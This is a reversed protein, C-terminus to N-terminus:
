FRDHIEGEYFPSTMVFEIVWVWPNANWESEPMSSTQDWIRMFDKLNMSGEARADEESIDQLQEVRINKVQLFIRAAARPMHISPRWFGHLEEMVKEDERDAKYWWPQPQEKPDKPRFYNPGPLKTIDNWVEGCNWTERVWLVDDAHYPMSWYRMLEERNEETKPLIREPDIGWAKASSPSTYVWKGPHSGAFVYCLQGKPQPRILRRTVTKRGELIARVMETNFLIPKERM